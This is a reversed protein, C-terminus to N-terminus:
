EVQQNPNEVLLFEGTAAALLREDASVFRLMSSTAETIASKLKLCAALQIADFARLPYRFLQEAASQAVDSDLEIVQYQTNWDHRFSLITEDLDSEGLVAERRLRAFASCIEVWTTRAVVLTNGSEPAVISQIWVSGEESVYRKVLASSNLFYVTV